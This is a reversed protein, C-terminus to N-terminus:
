FEKKASELVHKSIAQCIAPYDSAHYCPQNEGPLVHGVFGLRALMDRTIDFPFLRENIHWLKLRQRSGTPATPGVQKAGVAASEPQEPLQSSPRDPVLPAALIRQDQELAPALDSLPAIQKRM